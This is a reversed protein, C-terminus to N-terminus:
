LNIRTLLKCNESLCNSFSHVQLKTLVAGKAAATGRQLKLVTHRKTLVTYREAAAARSKHEAIYKGSRFEKQKAFDINQMEASISCLSGNIHNGAFQQM